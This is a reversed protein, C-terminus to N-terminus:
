AALGAFGAFGGDDATAAHVLVQLERGHHAFRVKDVLDDAIVPVIAARGMTVHSEEGAPM